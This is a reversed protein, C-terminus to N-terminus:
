NGSISRVKSFKVFDYLILFIGPTGGLAKFLGMFLPGRLSLLHGEDVGLVEPTARGLLRTVSRSREGRCVTFTYATVVDKREAQRPQDCVETFSHILLM